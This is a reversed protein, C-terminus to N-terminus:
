ALAAAGAHQPWESASSQLVEDAEMGYLERAVADTLADPAGDFVVRGGAMGVLRDCYSRALDLSHLNCLVTLGFHKNIRQLADMVVRSNRPDLSAVPEDAIVAEAGQVLCRAIAGRQQQGGSLTNARQAAYDSVGVRHLAAMGREKEERSWRGLMGQWFGVRGLAGVMVNSFLSLRSVLNFSQAIYGIRSRVERTKDSLRGEAQLKVGLTDVRGGGEDIRVFGTLTRLLTSKGSGSPGILAVMEGPEIRLSVGDLARRAGYSKSIREASFVTAGALPATAAAEPM